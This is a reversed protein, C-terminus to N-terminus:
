VMRLRSCKARWSRTLKHRQRTEVCFIYLSCCLIHGSGKFCCQFDSSLHIFILIGFENEDADDTEKTDEASIMYLFCLATMTM